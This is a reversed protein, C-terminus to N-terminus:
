HGPQRQRIERLAMFGPRFRTHTHTNSGSHASSICNGQISRTLPFDGTVVNCAGSRSAGPLGSKVKGSELFSRKQIRTEIHSHANTHIQQQWCSYSRQRQQQQRREAAERGSQLSELSDQTRAALRWRERKREREERSNARADRSGSAGSSQLLQRLKWPFAEPFSTTRPHNHVAPLSEWTRRPESALKENVRGPFTQVLV